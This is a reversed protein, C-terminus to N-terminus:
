YLPTDALRGSDANLVYSFLLMRQVLPPYAAAVVLGSVLVVLGILHLELELGKRKCLVLPFSIFMCYM